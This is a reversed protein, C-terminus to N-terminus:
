PAAQPWPLCVLTANHFQARDSPRIAGIEGLSLAGLQIEAQIRNQLIELEQEAGPGLHMRRGACYFTLLPRRQWAGNGMELKRALHGMCDGENAAPARLLLIGADLPIEGICHLAGDLDVEVPIRVTLSDGGRIVGFPYHVGYRYFSERDLEVGYQSLALDRYADIAPAANIRAIRNGESVSGGIAREPESFGHELAAHQGPPLALFLAGRDILQHADFLCPTPAFTESGANAGALDIAGPLQTQLMEVQSAIRPLLGDFFLLLHDSTTALERAANLLRTDADPGDLEGVLAQPMAEPLRLLVVGHQTFGTGVILAPFVAGALTVGRTGCAAQLSPIHARDPEAVLALVGMAPTELLWQDLCDNIASAQMPLHRM